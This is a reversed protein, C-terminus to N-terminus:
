SNILPEKINPHSMPQRLDSIHHQSIMSSEIQIPSGPGSKGSSLRYVILKSEYM